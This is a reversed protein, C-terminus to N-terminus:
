KNLPQPNPDPPLPLSIRVKEVGQGLGQSENFGNRETSVPAPAAPQVSVEPMFSANAANSSFFAADSVGLGTQKSLAAAPEPPAPAPPQAASPPPLPKEEAAAQAETEAAPQAAVPAPAAAAAKEELHQRAQEATKFNPDQKVAEAYAQRAGELDGRYEAELGKSYAMFALLNETPITEIAKNEEDTLTLGMAGVLKFVLNKELKFLGALDGRMSKVEVTKNEALNTAAAKLGIKDPDVDWFSGQIVTGAGAMKGAQQVTASDLIGTQGLAIEQYLKARQGQELVTLAKVQSLDTTLMEIMGAEISGLEARKGMNAFSAVVVTAPSPVTSATAASDAPVATAAAPAPAAPIAPTSDAPSPALPTNDQGPTPISVLFLGYIVIRAKAAKM